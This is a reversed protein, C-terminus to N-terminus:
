AGFGIANTIAGKLTYGEAGTGSQNSNAGTVLFSVKQIENKDDLYAYWFRGYVRSFPM